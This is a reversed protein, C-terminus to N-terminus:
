FWLMILSFLFVVSFLHLFLCHQKHDVLFLKEM